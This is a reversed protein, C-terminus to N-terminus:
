RGVAPLHEVGPPGGIDLSHRFRTSLDSAVDFLSRGQVWVSLHRTSALNAVAQGHGPGDRMPVILSLKVEPMKAAVSLAVTLAAVMLHDTPVGTVGAGAELLRGASPALKVYHDYGRKRPPCSNHALDLRDEWGEDERKDLVAHRLRAEAIALGDPAPPLRCSRLAAGASAELDESAALTRAARHLELLDAVLPVIAAADTVAHNVAIHLYASDRGTSSASGPLTLVSISAPLRFGRSRAKLWAAHRMDAESEFNLWEFHASEEAGGAECMPLGGSAPSSAVRPWANLLGVAASGDLAPREEAEELGFLARLVLLTQVASMCLSATGEDGASRYPVARLGVHRQVLARCAVRM